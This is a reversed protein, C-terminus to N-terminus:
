SFFKLLQEGFVLLVAAWIFASTWNAFQFKGQSMETSGAVLPVSARLPGSFRAILIAWAGWNEFIDHGKQRLTSYKSLPWMQWITDRFYYGIWYSVWDGMAAGTASAVLVLLWLQMDGSGVLAGVGVLIAWFPLVLSVFAISEGFALVFMAPVTLGPNARIFTTITEPAAKLWEGVSSMDM